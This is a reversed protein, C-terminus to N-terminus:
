SLFINLVTKNTNQTCIIGPNKGEPLQFCTESTCGNETKM